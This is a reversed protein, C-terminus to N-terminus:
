WSWSWLLVGVILGALAISTIAVIMPLWEKSSGGGPSDIWRGHRTARMAGSAQLGGRGRARRAADYERRKEPDKLVAYAENLRRARQAIWGSSTEYMDPHYLQMQEIWKQHIEESTAHQDVELISYFDSSSAINLQALLFEAKQTLNRVDLHQFEAAERLDAYYPSRLGRAIYLLIRTLEKKDPCVASLDPLPEPTALARIIARVNTEIM